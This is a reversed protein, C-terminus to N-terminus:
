QEIIITVRLNHHETNHHERQAMQTYIIITDTTDVAYMHDAYDYTFDFLLITSRHVRLVKKHPFFSYGLILM